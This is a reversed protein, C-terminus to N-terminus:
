KLATFSSPGGMRMKVGIGLVDASVDATGLFHQQPVLVADPVRDFPADNEYFVHHYSFDVSISESWRYSGGMSAYWRNSDPVGSPRTTPGDVPSIEYATGARLTLDRSWDYEGGLAFYWGDRWQFDLNAVTAGAGLPGFPAGLVVPIVDFRSWNIWEVTGLLRAAPSVVQRLSLTAKEPLEIDAEAPAEALGFIEIGGELSHRVASRFGLGISTGSAPRLNLGATFGVGLDDGTLNSTGFPTSATQRLVDFYEVQVGAGIAVGPMIEYSLSPTVNLSILKATAGLPKGAWNANDPKSGLGWPSTMSIGLVMTENLRWTAFSAATLAERSIDAEATEPSPAVGGISLVTLDAEGLILSSSSEVTLGSEAFAAAAPNWFISSISPGGAATGAMSMGQFYTSNAQEIDLGGALAGCPSLV